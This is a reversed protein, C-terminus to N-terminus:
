RWSRSIAVSTTVINSSTPRPRGSSASTSFVAEEKVDKRHSCLFLGVHVADKLDVKRSVSKYEEGFRAASFIFTDGRRELAIETPHYVSLEVQQTEDGPAPRYQLSSLIDGHVCADAYPSDDALSDRAMIGIKRHPDVGEGVFRITARVIFDGEIKSWAYHFEDREFWMNDGAGQLWYSQTVPDYTANGALAPDGIDQHHAFIGLPTMQASAPLSLFALALTTFSPLLVFPLKKMSVSPHPPNMRAGLSRFYLADRPYLKRGKTGAHREGDILRYKCILGKCAHAELQRRFREIAGLFEPWEKEAGTIFLRAPLPKGSKAFADEYHFLWDDGPSTAPSAAIYGQFLEPKSLM